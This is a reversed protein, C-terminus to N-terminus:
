AIPSMRGPGLACGRDGSDDMDLARMLAEETPRDLELNLFSLATRRNKATIAGIRDATSLM